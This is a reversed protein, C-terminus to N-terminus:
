LVREEPPEDPLYWELFSRPIAFMASAFCILLFAPLLNESITVILPESVNEIALAFMVMGVASTFFVRAQGDTDLALVAGMLAIMSVSGIAMGLISWEGASGTTHINVQRAVIYLIVSLAITPLPYTVIEDLNMLDSQTM